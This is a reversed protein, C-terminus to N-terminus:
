IYAVVIRGLREKLDKMNEALCLVAMIELCRNNHFPGGSWATPREAWGVVINRLVRDNM